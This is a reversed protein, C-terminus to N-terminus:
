LPLVGQLKKGRRWLTTRHVTGDKLPRGGPHKKDQISTAFSQAEVDIGLPNDNILLKAVSDQLSQTTEPPKYVDELANGEEDVAGICATGGMPTVTYGIGDCIFVLNNKVWEDKM